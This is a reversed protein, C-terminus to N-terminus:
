FQSRIPGVRALAIQKLDSTPLLKVILDVEYWIMLCKDMFRDRTKSCCQRGCPGDCLFLLGCRSPCRARGSCVFARLQLRSNAIVAQLCLDCSVLIPPDLGRVSEWAVGGVQGWRFKPATCLSQTVCISGCVTAFIECTPCVQTRM